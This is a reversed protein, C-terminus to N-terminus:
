CAPAFLMWEELSWILTRTSSVSKYLVPITTLQEAANLSWHTLPQDASEIEFKHVCWEGAGRWAWINEQMPGYSVRGASQEKNYNITNNKILHIAFHGTARLRM